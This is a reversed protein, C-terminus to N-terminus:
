DTQQAGFTFSFTVKVPYSESHLRVGAKFSRARGHFSFLAFFLSTRLDVRRASDRSLHGRITASDFIALLADLKGSLQWYMLFLQFETNLNPRTLSRVRPRIQVEPAYQVPSPCSCPLACQLPSSFFGGGCADVYIPKIDCQLNEDFSWRVGRTPKGM